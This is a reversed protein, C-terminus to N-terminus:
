LRVELALEMQGAGARASVVWRCWLPDSILRAYPLSRVIPRGRSVLARWHAGGTSWRFSGAKSQACEVFVSVSAPGRPAVLRIRGAVPEKYDFGAVGTGTSGSGSDTTAAVVKWVPAEGRIGEAWVVSAATILAVTAAALAPGGSM